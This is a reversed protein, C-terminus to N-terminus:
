PRPPRGGGAGPPEPRSAATRAAQRRIVADREARRREAEIREAALRAAALRAAAEVADPAGGAFCALVARDGRAADDAARKLARQRTELGDSQRRLTAAEGQAALAQAQAPRIADCVAAGHDQEAKTLARALKRRTWWGFLGSPAEDLAKRASAEAERQSRTMDALIRDSSTELGHLRKTIARLDAAVADRADGLAIAARTAPAVTSATAARVPCPEARAVPQAPPAAAATAAARVATVRDRAGPM